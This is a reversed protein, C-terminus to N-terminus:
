TEIFQILDKKNLQFEYPKALEKLQIIPIPFLMSDREDEEILLCMNKADKLDCVKVIKGEKTEFCRQINITRGRKKFYKIVKKAIIEIDEMSTQTIFETYEDCGPCYFVDHDFKNFHTLETVPTIFDYEPTANYPQNEDQRHDVIILRRGCKYCYHKRFKIKFPNGWFYHTCVINTNPHMLKM